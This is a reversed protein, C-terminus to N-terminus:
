KKSVDKKKEEIELAMDHIIEQMKKKEKDMMMLVNREPMFESLSTQANKEKKVFEDVIEM